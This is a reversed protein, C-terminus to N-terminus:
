PITVTYDEVEGYSFTECSAAGAGWKMSIRMRMNGAPVNSPVSFSGSIASTGSGSYVLESADSFVGDGNFDIWVRWYEGYAGGSFGPTLSVANFGRALPIPATGTQNSYGGNNSTARVTGAVSVQQIWEMSSNNGKSACYTVPPPPTGLAQSVTFPMGAITFTASRAAGTNASVSYTVTASGSGTAGATITVWAPVGSVVRPCNGAMTVTISGSGSAGGFTANAPSVSVSAPCVAPDYLEATENSAGGGALLVKGNGLLTATGSQHGDSSSAVVQWSGTAPNYREISNTAGFGALAIVSGDALSLAKHDYRSENLSGTATFLGTAPDYKQATAFVTNGNNGLGGAVLVSGDPLLTAAAGSRAEPLSGTPSWLGSAPNWLEASALYVNSRWGGALLVRGDALVAAAPSERETTAAGVLTFLGTAPDFVETSAISAGNVYGGTVLARGDPLALVISKIRPFTMSGTPSWSGTAPDYIEASALWTGSASGGAVLVRGDALRAAGSTIRGQSLSGTAAFTETTPDFVESTATVTGSSDVVGGIVLVRGNALSVAAPGSRPTSMRSTPLTGPGPAAQTVTHNIGAISLTATRSAGPNSSVDYTVSGNGTGSAPSTLTIWSPVGAVFWPCAPTATVDVSGLYAGGTASVSRASMSLTPAPSCVGAAQTVAVNRGAITLTASRAAGTNANAAHSYAITANGAGSSTITMWSPVGGVTWSCAATVGSLEISGTGAGNELSVMGPTVVADMCPNAAQTVTFSNGAVTFTATREAGPNAAASVNRTLSGTGSTTMSIWAPM